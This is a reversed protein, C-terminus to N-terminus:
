PVHFAWLDGPLSNNAGGGILWLRDAHVVSYAAHRASPRVSDTSALWHDGDVTSWIDDVSVIPDLLRGGLLWLRGAYSQCAHWIRGQWPADAHQTWQVGDVSSWADARGILSDWDGGGIVWLQGGFSASCHFARAPWPAHALVQTWNLGDSSRWVDRKLVAPDGTNASKGGIIWLQGNHTTLSAGIRPGWPAASVRRTWALGDPSTWIASSISETPLRNDRLGGMNLMEGHFSATMPYLGHTFPTSASRWVVGDASAWADTLTVPPQQGQYTWGGLMWIEGRHSLTGGADRTGWPASAAEQTWGAALISPPVPEAPGGGGGGGGCAVLASAVTLAALLNGLIVPMGRLQPLATLRRPPSM